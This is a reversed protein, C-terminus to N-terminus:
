LTGLKNFKLRDETGNQKLPFPNSTNILTHTHTRTNHDPAEVMPPNSHQMRNHHLVPAVLSDSSIFPFSGSIITLINREGCTTGPWKDAVSISRCAWVCECVDCVSILQKGTATTVM